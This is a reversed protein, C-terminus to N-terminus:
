LSKTGFTGIYMNGKKTTISIIEYIIRTKLKAIRNAALIVEPCTKNNVIAPNATFNNLNFQNAAMKAPIKNNNTNM